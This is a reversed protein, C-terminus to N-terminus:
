KIARSKLFNDYSKRSYEDLPNESLILENLFPMHFLNEPVTKIQNKYLDLKRLPRFQLGLSAVETIGNESLDLDEVASFGAFEAKEIRNNSLNLKNLSDLGYLELPLAEFHNNCLNVVKLKKLNGITVPLKSLENNDVLLEELNRLDGISMPLAKLHNHAVNLVQLNVMAGITEPLSDIEQNRLILVKVKDPSKLAEDLNDFYSQANKLQYFKFTFFTFAVGICTLVAIVILRKAGKRKLAM